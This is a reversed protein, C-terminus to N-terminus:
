SNIAVQEVCGKGSSKAKYVAEDAASFLKNYDCQLSTPLSTVGISVTVHPDANLRSTIEECIRVGKTFGGEMDCHSLMLLFEDGGLRAAFDEKRCNSLLVEAITSLVVDGTMHGYHDNINKFDDVDILIMSLPINHRCAENIKKPAMETLFHRNYLSTLGDKLAIEQMHLQQEEIKDLLRKHVIHNRVRIVLEEDIYPKIVYDTVGARLLEIRRSVDDFGTMALIPINQHYKDMDRVARVLGFGSMQGALIVDTLILDYRKNNIALLADEATTYHDVNLGMHNLVIKVRAAIALSDEIYLVDGDLDEASLYKRIYDRFYDAINELDSKHFIETVGMEYSGDLSQKSDESTIMIIPMHKGNSMSRIKKCLENGQMDELYMAICTIDFKHQNVEEIAERANTVITLDFGLDKLMNGLLQHYVKSPEVLM